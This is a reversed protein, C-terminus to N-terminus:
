SDSINLKRDDNLKCVNGMLHVSNISNFFEDSIKVTSWTREGQFFIETLLVNVRLINLLRIFTQSHVRGAFEVNVVEYSELLWSTKKRCTRTYFKRFTCEHFPAIKNEPSGSIKATHRQIYMICHAETNIQRSTNWSYRLFQKLCRNKLEM